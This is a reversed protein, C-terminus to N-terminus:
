VLDINLLEIPENFKKPGQGEDGFTMNQGRWLGERVGEQGRCSEESDGGLRRRSGESDKTRRKKLM